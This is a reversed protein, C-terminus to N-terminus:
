GWKVNSTGIENAIRKFIQFEHEQRAIQQWANMAAQIIEALGNCEMAQQAVSKWKLGEQVARALGMDQSEIRSMDLVGDCTLVKEGGVHPCGHLMGLMANTHSASLSAYKVPHPFSPLAGKSNDVLSQNFKMVAQQDQHSVEVCRANM